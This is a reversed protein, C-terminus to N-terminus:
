RTYIARSSTSSRGAGGINNQDRDDYTMARPSLARASTSSDQPHTEYKVAQQTVPESALAVIM